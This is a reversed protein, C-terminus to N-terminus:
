QIELEKQAAYQKTYYEKFQPFLFHRLMEADLTELQALTAQIQEDPLGQQKLATHIFVKLTEPNSVLETYAQEIDEDKPTCVLKKFIEMQQMPNMQQMYALVAEKKEAPTLETTKFPQGTLIDIDTSAFQQQILTSTSTKQIAKTTLKAPYAITGSLISSSTNEGPRIIGSIKLTFGFDDQGVKNYLTTLGEADKSFDVWTNSGIEQNYREYPLILRFEMNCLEEYSWSKAQTTDVMEGKGAAMLAEM